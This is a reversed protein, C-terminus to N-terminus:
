FCVNLAVPWQEGTTLAVTDAPSFRSVIQYSTGFAMGYCMGVVVTLVLVSQESHMIHPFQYSCVALGGLGLVFKSLTIQPLGFRRILADNLVTQLVLIPISPFFYAVNLHLLVEPGYVEGLDELLSSISTWALKYAAQLMGHVVLGGERAQSAIGYAHM